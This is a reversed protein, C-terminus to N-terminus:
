GLSVWGGGSQEEIKMIPHVEWLTGRTNQLQEPHEPDLMLWGSIRVRTGASAIAELANVTWGPHNVRVRPTAEVVVASARDSMGGPQGLLWIHFDEDTTSHCNPTEPGEQRAGALYGELVVPTGEYQAVQAASSASWNAHAAKVTDQPVPLNLISSVATPQYNGSDIRNKNENLVPDGGDGQPPCSHFTEEQPTQKGAAGPALTPANGSSGSPQSSGGSSSGPTGLNISSIITQAPPPLKAMLSPDAKLLVVGAGLLAVLVGVVGGAAATTRKSSTRKSM